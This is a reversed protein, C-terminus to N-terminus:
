AAPLCPEAVAELKLLARTETIRAEILRRFTQQDAVADLLLSTRRNHDVQWDLEADLIMSKQLLSRAKRPRGALAALVGVHLRSWDDRTGRPRVFAYAGSLTGFHTRTTRVRDAALEAMSRIAERFSGEGRFQVFQGHGEILERSGLFSRGGFGFDFSWYDKPRWLWQIGVNLYSGRSWSSPQFEIAVAYWRGDDYWFRSRGKQRVGLPRLVERAVANIIKNHVPQASLSPAGRQLGSVPDSGAM